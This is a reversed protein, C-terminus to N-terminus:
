SGEWQGTGRETAGWRFNGANELIVSEKQSKGGQCMTAGMYLTYSVKNANPSVLKCPFIWVWPLHRRTRYDGRPLTYMKLLLHKKVSIGNWTTYCPLFINPFLLAMKLASGMQSDTGLASRHWLENHQLYWLFWSLSACNLTFGRLSFGSPLCVELHSSESAWHLQWPCPKEWCDKTVARLRSSNIRVWECEPFLFCKSQLAM